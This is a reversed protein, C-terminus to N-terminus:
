KLSHPGHREEVLSQAYALCARVDDMTLRPYDAFLDDFNPNNALYALVVGVAIRTGRVTPKGALIEPDEVIRDADRQQRAVM